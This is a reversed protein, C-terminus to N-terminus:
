AAVKLLDVLASLDEDGHGAAVGEDVLAEIPAMLDPRVGHEVAVDTLKVGAAQMALPSATPHEGADVREAMATLDSAMESIFPVLLESLATASGGVARVLAFAQLAGGVMGYMGSLLALDWLSADDVEIRTGLAELAPEDVPGGSHFILAEESGIAPPVALIAGDVYVGGRESVRTGTAKTAAPTTTTFNVVTRGSVDGDDILADAVEAGAVCVLVLPSAAVAARVDPAVTAGDLARPTRNWVTTPHGAEVLASALASGMAGLGIVTVPTKHEAM